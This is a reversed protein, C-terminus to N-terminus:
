PGDALARWRKVLQWQRQRLEDPDTAPDLLEEAFRGVAAAYGRFQGAAGPADPVRMQATAAAAKLGEAPGRGPLAAVATRIAGPDLAAVMARLEAEVKEPDAADRVSRWDPSLRAMGVLLGGAVVPLTLLGLAGLTVRRRGGMRTRDLLGGALIGFVGGALHGEWASGPLLSVLANAGVVWFLRRGWEAVVDPPLQDRYRVLWAVVAFLVGWAAGSAGCAVAGPHLGVTACAAAFGSVLFLVAFRWRGWLWEAVPGLLALAFLNGVLHLGSTHVFGSTALRWWDGAFVRPGYVAGLKLLGDTPMERLAHGVPEGHRWVGVIGVAFWVVCALLVAPTVVVPGPALFAERTLDGRDDAPPPAAFLEVAGAAHTPDLAHQGAPTLRFGQGRGRVWDAVEILGGQRLRWVLTDLTPRVAGPQDAPFWVGAACWRLVDADSPPPPPDAPM